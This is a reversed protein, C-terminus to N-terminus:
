HCPREPAFCPESSGRLKDLAQAALLEALRKDAGLPMAIKWTQNPNAAQCDAVAQRLDDMLLGEFLLHPQVVALACGSRSLEELAEPVSPQQAHIFGTVSKATPTTSQRLQSFARMQETATSSSSGRGIMALAVQPCHIGQCSAHCEPGCVVERFRETSLEVVRPSLELSDTQAVIRMEFQNAAAQVEGPIDSQAHGATFLLVPVVVSGVEVRDTM